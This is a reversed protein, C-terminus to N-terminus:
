NGERPQSCNVFVRQLCFCTNKARLFNTNQKEKWRYDECFTV